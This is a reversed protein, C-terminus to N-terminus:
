KLSYLFKQYLIQFADFSMIRVRYSLRRCDITRIQSFMAFSNPEDPMPFYYRGHRVTRTLPIAIFTAENLKKAVVMPRLFDKGSGDIEFGINLGSSCFWIERERFFPTKPSGNLESKRRNWADFDKEM